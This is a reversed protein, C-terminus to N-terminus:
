EIFANIFGTPIFHNYVIAYFGLSLGRLPSIITKRSIGPTDMTDDGQSKTNNETKEDIIM